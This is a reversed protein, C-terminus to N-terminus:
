SNPLMYDKSRSPLTDIKSRRNPSIPTADYDPPSIVVTPDLVMVVPVDIAESDPSVSHAIYVTETIIITGSKGSSGSIIGRTAIGISM